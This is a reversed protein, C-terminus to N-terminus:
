FSMDDIRRVEKAVMSFLIMRQKIHKAVIECGQLKMAQEVIVSDSQAVEELWAAFKDREEQTLSIM